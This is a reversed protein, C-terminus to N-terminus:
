LFDFVHLYMDERSTMMEKESSTKDNYGILHLLGHCIVRYFENLLDSNFITSNEKVREISIFVDGSINHFDKTYDFTIVDTLDDHNLYALNIRQLYTDSCFIFNLNGIIQKENKVVFLIWERVRDEPFPIKNSDDIWTFQISSSQDINNKM